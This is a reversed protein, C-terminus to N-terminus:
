TKYPCFYSYNRAVPNRLHSKLNKLCLAAHTTMPQLPPIIHANGTPCARGRARTYMIIYIFTYSPFIGRPDALKGFYTTESKLKVQKGQCFLNNEEAFCTTKRPSIVQKSIRAWYGTEDIAFSVIPGSAEQGCPTCHRSIRFAAVGTISNAARM